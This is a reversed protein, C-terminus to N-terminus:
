RWLITLTIHFFAFSSLFSNATSSRHEGTELRQTWILLKINTSVLALQLGFGDDSSALWSTITNKLCRCLSVFQRGVSFVVCVLVKYSENLFATWILNTILFSFISAKLILFSMLRNYTVCWQVPVNLKIALDGVLLTATSVILCVRTVASM